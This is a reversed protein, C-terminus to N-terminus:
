ARLGKKKFRNIISMARRTAGAKYPKYIRIVGPAFNKKFKNIAKTFFLLKRTNKYRGKHRVYDLVIGRYKKFQEKRRIKFKERSISSKFNRALRDGRIWAKKIAPAQSYIYYKEFYEQPVRITLANKPSIFYSSRRQLREVIPLYEGVMKPGFKRPQVTDGLVHRVSRRRLASKTPIEFYLTSTGKSKVKSPVFASVLAGRSHYYGSFRNLIDWYLNHSEVELFEKFIEKNYKIFAYGFSWSAPVRIEFRTLVM